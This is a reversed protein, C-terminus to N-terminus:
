VIKDHNYPQPTTLATHSTAELQSTPFRRNILIYLLSSRVQMSKHIFQLANHDWTTPIHIDVMKEFSVWLRRACGRVAPLNGATLPQALLSHFQWTGGPIFSGKHYDTAMSNPLLMHARPLHNSICAWSASPPASFGPILGNCASNNLPFLIYNTYEVIEQCHPLIPLQFEEENIVLFYLQNMKCPWDSPQQHGPTVLLWPM